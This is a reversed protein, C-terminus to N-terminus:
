ANLRIPTIAPHGGGLCADDMAIEQSELTGPHGVMAPVQAGMGEARDSASGTPLFKGSSEVSTTVVPKVLSPASPPAM